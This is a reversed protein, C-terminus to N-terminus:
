DDQHHGVYGRCFIRCGYVYSDELDGAVLAGCWECNDIQSHLNLCCLCLFEGNFPVVSEEESYECDSCYARNQETLGEGLYTIPAYKEVFDALEFDEDCDECYAQGLDYIYIPRNCNACEERLKKNSRLNCVLCYSSYLNGAILEQKSSEFGCSECALFAIGRQKAKQIDSALTEFKAKLYGRQRNVKQHLESIEDQFDNFDQKWDKALLRHLHFWAKAQESVISEITQEAPENVYDPHFFHVMKNRHERLEYFSRQAEKPIRVNSINELRRVTEGIGVSRFDGAQFRSINAKNPEEIVLSWHELLLKAKLFLEIAACFHIVSYKPGTALEDLSHTLFDIANTVLSGFLELQRQESSM